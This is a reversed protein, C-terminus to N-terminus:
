KLIYYTGKKDGLKLLVDKEVLDALDRRITEESVDSFMERFDRNAIRQNKAIYELATQQRENLELRRWKSKDMEDGVMKEGPGRLTVKFGNSTEAFRPAPLGWERMLRIMRDIGYGLREIYGM